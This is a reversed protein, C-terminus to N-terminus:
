DKDQKGTFTYPTITYEPFLEKIYVRYNTKNPRFVVRDTSSGVPHPHLLLLKFDLLPYANEVVSVFRQIDTDLPTHTDERIFLVPENTALVDTLRQMRRPLISQFEELSYHASRISTGYYIIDTETYTPHKDIMIKEKKFVRELVDIVESFSESLFWEFMGSAGRLHHEQLAISIECNYGLPEIRM